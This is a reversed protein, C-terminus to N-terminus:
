YKKIRQDSSSFVCLFKKPVRMMEPISSDRRRDVAVKVRDTVKTNIALLFLYLLIGSTCLRSAAIRGSIKSM